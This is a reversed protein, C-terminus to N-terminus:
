NLDRMCKSIKANQGVTRSLFDMENSLKKVILDTKFPDAKIEKDIEAAEESTVFRM